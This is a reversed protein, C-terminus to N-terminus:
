QRPSNKENRHFTRLFIEKEENNFAFCWLLGLTAVAWVAGKVLFLSFSSCTWAYQLAFGLAASLLFAPLISGHCQRLFRGMAIGMRKSYFLDILVNHALTFSLFVGVAAGLAGIRPSLIAISAVSLASGITNVAARYKVSNTAYILEEAITQTLHFLCPVLVLVLCYYSKEFGPGLWLQIFERGLCIAGFVVMGIVYLQVRGVRIMLQTRSATDSGAVVMRTVRPLFIGSLAKSLSLTYGELSIVIAFLAIERSNTFIALLFPIIGFFFKDAVMALTAWSSFSAIYSYIERDKARVNLTLHEKRKIYFVRYLQFAIQSGVNICVVSFLGWGRWLSYFLLLISFVKYAIDIVVVDLTREYALFIGKVSLLPFNILVFCGTIIFVRKFRLFEETTFGTFIDESFFYVVFLIVSILLDIALFLKATIGLLDEVRDERGDARLKAIYRTQAAGIGFDLSFYGVLSASLAYISYDSVGLTKILYPTFLFGTVIYFATSFYSLLSAKRASQNSM